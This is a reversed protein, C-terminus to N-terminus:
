TNKRCPHNLKHKTGDFQLGGLCEAYSKIKIVLLRYVTASFLQSIDGFEIHKSQKLFINNTKNYSFINRIM